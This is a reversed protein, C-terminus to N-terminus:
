LTKPDVVLHRRVFDRSGWRAGPASPWDYIYDGLHIVFDLNDRAVHEYANFYGQTYDQCAATAFNIRADRHGSDYDALTRTRGTPSRHIGATFRYFYTAGPKLGDVEVHISHALEPVANAHGQAELRRFRPERALEWHVRIAQNEPNRGGTLQPALRTWLVLSSSSPDGSAVGLSFPDHQSDYDKGLTSRSFALLGLIRALDRRTFVAAHTAVPFEAGQGAM